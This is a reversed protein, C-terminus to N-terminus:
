MECQGLAPALAGPFRLSQAAAPCPILPPSSLTLPPPRPIGSPRLPHCFPHPACDNPSARKSRTLMTSPLPVVQPAHHIPPSCRPPPSPCTLLLAGPAYRLGRCDTNQKRVTREWFRPETNPWKVDRPSRPWTCWGLATGAWLYLVNCVCFWKPCERFLVVALSWTCWGRRVQGCVCLCAVCAM